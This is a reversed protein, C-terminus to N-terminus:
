DRDDIAARTDDGIGTQFRNGVVQGRGVADERKITDSGFCDGHGVAGRRIALRHDVRRQALRDIERIRGSTQRDVSALVVVRDGDSRDIRPVVDIQRDIAVTAAIGHIQVAIDCKSRTFAQDDVGLRQIRARTRIQRCRARSDDRDCHIVDGQIGCARQCRGARHRDLRLRGRTM